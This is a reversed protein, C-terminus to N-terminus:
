DVKFKRNAEMAEKAITDVNEIMRTIEDLAASSEETAAAADGAEKATQEILSSVESVSATVEETTAAQEQTAAAVESTSATVKEVADAIKNFSHLTETVMGSGEEVTSRAEDMAQSAQQTSKTLVSIMEEIREASNRSEQALSKVETAVVAFGRGADGARAAEIAANLALLNTQNALERIIVVIKTIESMQKEVDSVIEYVKSTSTSIGQMSKEANGALAAGSHSLDNAQKALNSVSEMNSTIEEVAASMDQMAKAIQDVGQAVKEANASVKTTSQAIQQVGKAGDHISSTATDATATLTTMKKNVDGLNDKLSAIIGRVGAQLRKVLEFVAQTDEDPQKLDYHATLDGEAAKSYIGALSNIEQEMYSYVKATVAQRAEIEKETAREQTVDRYITLINEINGTEDFIPITNRVVSKQGSPFEFVCEGKVPRKFREAEEFGEGSASIVRIDKITMALLRDRPYGTLELIAGNCDVIKLNKNWLISPYPSQEFLATIRRKMEANDESM